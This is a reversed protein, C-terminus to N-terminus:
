FMKFIFCIRAIKDVVELNRSFNLLFNIIGACIVPVSIGLLVQIKKIEEKGIRKEWIKYIMYIIATILIAALIRMVILEDAIFKLFISNIIPLFPTTITSIEKYPILGKAINRAVNYNWIEDLDGLPKIIITSLVFAFVILIFINEKKFIKKM